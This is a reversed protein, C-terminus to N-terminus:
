SAWPDRVGRKLTESRRRADELWKDGADEPLARYIDAMAELATMTSPGPILRAVEHNNRVVILEEHKFEVSDLMSKFNRALETASVTRMDGGQDILNYSKIM